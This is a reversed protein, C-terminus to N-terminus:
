ILNLFLKDGDIKIQGAEYTEPTIEKIKKIADPSILTGYRAVDNISCYIM